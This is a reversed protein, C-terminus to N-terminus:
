LQHLNYCSSQCTSLNNIIFQLSCHDSYTTIDDISFSVIENASSIFYDVVSHGRCNFCTFSGIGQENVVGEEMLLDYDLCLVYSSFYGVM